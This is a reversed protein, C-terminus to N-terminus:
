PNAHPKSPNLEEGFNIRMRRLGLIRRGARLDDTKLDLEMSHRKGDRSM